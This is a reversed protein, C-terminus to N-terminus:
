ATRRARWALAVLALTSWALPVILLCALVAGAAGVAAMRRLTWADLWQGLTPFGDSWGSKDRSWVSRLWLWALGLDAGWVLRRHVGDITWAVFLVSALAIGLQAKSRRGSAWATALMAGAALMALRIPQLAQTTVWTFTLAPADPAPMMRRFRYREGVLPFDASAEQMEGQQQSEQAYIAKRRVLISSYESGGAWANQIGLVAKLFHQVRRVHDYRLHSWSSLNGGASLTYLSEPVYVHWEVAAVEADVTPLEVKRRGLVGMAEGQRSWALEIVARSAAIGGGSVPAVSLVQGVALDRADSLFGPNQAIIEHWRSPDGYFRDALADLTDGDRVVWNQAQGADFRESQPLPLLLTEGDPATAPRMARGDVRAHTLTAGSPLRIGLWPRTENRVHLQMRTVEVGDEILVTAAEMEDITTSALTLEAERQVDLQIEPEGDLTFGLLLPNPTLEALEPPLDRLLTAGKVQTATATFGAPGQIGIAGTLPVGEAPLPMALTFSEGATVPLQFHVRVQARDAVLWRCFVVLEGKNASWQLVSEGEVNVVEVGKPVRFRMRDIEGELVRTDFAAVGRVLAEHLTFVVHERVETRAPVDLAAVNSRWGLDLSGSGDLQGVIRTGGGEGRLSTIAGGALDARIDPEPVLISIRTPGAPPFALALRRAFRDDEQGVFFEVRIVHEGPTDIGVTYSGDQALLSTQRGDLAVSAISASDSLVAARVGGEPRLVRVRSTLVGSFVGRQFSGEVSRDVQLVDVPAAAVQHQLAAADLWQVWQDLPLRVVGDAALAPAILWHWM